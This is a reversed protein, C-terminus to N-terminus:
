LDIDWHITSHAYCIPSNGADEKPVNEWFASIYEATNDGKIDSSINRWGPVSEIWDIGLKQCNKEFVHRQKSIYIDIISHRILRPFLRVMRHRMKAPALKKLFNIM